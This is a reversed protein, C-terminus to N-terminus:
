EVTIGGGFLDITDHHIELMTKAIENIRNEMEHKKIWKDVAQCIELCFLDVRLILVDNIKVRHSGVYKDSEFRPAMFMIERLLEQIRQNSIDGEGGHLYSCRLAYADRGSLFVLKENNIKVSYVGGMYEDFWKIYRKSSSKSPSELKGCIDPLTLALTLASYWNETELSRAIATTFHTMKKSLPRYDDM